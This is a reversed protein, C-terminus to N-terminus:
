FWLLELFLGQRNHDIADECPHRPLSHPTVTEKVLARLLVPCVHATTLAVAATLCVIFGTVM